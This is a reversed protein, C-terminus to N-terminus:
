NFQGCSRVIFAEDFSATLGIQVAKWAIVEPSPPLANFNGPHVYDLVLEAVEARLVQRKYGVCHQGRFIPTNMLAKQDKSLMNLEKDTSIDKAFETSNM